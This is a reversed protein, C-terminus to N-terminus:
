VKTVTGNKNSTMQCFSSHSDTDILELMDPMASSKGSTKDSLAVECADFSGVVASANVLVFRLSPKLSASLICADDSFPESSPNVKITVATDAQSEATKRGEAAVALDQATLATDVSIASVEADCCATASCSPKDNLISSEEQVYRM